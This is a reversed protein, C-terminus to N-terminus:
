SALANSLTTTCHYYPKIEVVMGDRVTWAELVPALVAAGSESTCTIEIMGVVLDDDVLLRLVNLGQIRLSGVLGPFAEVVAQKGQWVGPYPHGAPETLVVDDALLDIFAAGDGRGIADYAAAVTEKAGRTVTSTSM